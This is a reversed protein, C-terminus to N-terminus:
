GHALERATRAAVAKKVRRRVEADSLGARPSRLTGAWHVITKRVPRVKIGDAEEEFAVRSGAGLNFRRRLEQPLTVQGKVTLQSTKM